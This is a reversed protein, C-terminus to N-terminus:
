QPFDYKVFITGALTLQEYSNQCLITADPNQILALLQKKITNRLEETLGQQRVSGGGFRHRGGHRVNRQAQM